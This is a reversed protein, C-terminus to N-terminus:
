AFVRRPQSPQVSYQDIAAGDEGLLLRVNVHWGPTYTIYDDTIEDVLLGIEDICQYRPLLYVVEGDETEVTVQEYLIENAQEKSEFKLYYDM